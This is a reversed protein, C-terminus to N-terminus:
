STEYITVSDLANLLWKGRVTQCNHVNSAAIPQTVIPNYTRGSDVRKNGLSFHVQSHPALKRLKEANLTLTLQPTAAGPSITPAISNLHRERLFRFFLELCSPLMEHLTEHVVRKQSRRVLHRLHDTSHTQQTTCLLPRMVFLTHLASRSTVIIRCTWTTPETPANFPSVTSANSFYTFKYLRINRTSYQKRKKFFTKEKTRLPRTLFLVQSKLWGSELVKTFATVANIAM